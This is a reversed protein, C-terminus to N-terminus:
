REGWFSPECLDLLALVSHHVPKLEDRYTEVARGDQTLTYSSLGSFTKLIQSTTPHPAERDEPYLKLPESKRKKLTQRVHRELLAQVMLAVFFLFMNAEVRQIRKFLLPAARHVHKFQEFRKELRPQFKWAKLVQGPSLTPDTCLLPFLGDIRRERQLADAQRTWQLSYSVKQRIRYRARQNPPRGRPRLRIRHIHLPIRVQLFPELRYKQLIENVAKQIPPRKSLRPTNLKLALEELAQEAKRLRQERSFRDRKRKESSVFWYIPYRRHELAYHGDFLYFYETTDEHNPKRRRWVLRKPKKEDRLAATFSKAENLNQPVITLARGGASSIHDLQRRTCLKSDAVYLFDAGGHLTKLYEWTEIHTSADNRNGPYVQHHIPVAGDASISLTFLLQKLDPRHDKSHGQRLELGSRTRGPIRGCAKVTTSDNHIRQLQIEFAKIAAVVLRTQLSARDAGYLKDLARAFRDDTFRVEPMCPYGLARLDVSEIWEALEYLPDKAVALNVVLLVLVDISSVAERGSVEIHEQLIQRLGIRRIVEKILPLGGVEFRQLKKATRSSM